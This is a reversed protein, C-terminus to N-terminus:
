LVSFVFTSGVINTPWSMGLQCTTSIPHQIWHHGTVVTLVCPVCFIVTDSQIFLYHTVDLQLLLCIFFTSPRM